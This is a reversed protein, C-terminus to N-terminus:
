FEPDYFEGNQQMEELRKKDSRLNDPIDHGEWELYDIREQIQKIKLDVRSLYEESVKM